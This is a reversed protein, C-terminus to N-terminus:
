VRPLDDFPRVMGQLLTALPSQQRWPLLLDPLGQGETLCRWAREFEWRIGHISVASATRATNKELIFPDEVCLMSRGAQTKRTWGKDVRSLPQGLRPSVVNRTYDFEFAYFHFFGLLLTALSAKRPRGHWGRLFHAEYGYQPDSPLLQGCALCKGVMPPSAPTIPLRLFKSCCLQQLPPIVGHIQLYYFMMLCYTYSNLTDLPADSIGRAKAWKKVVMLLPRVHPNTQTYTAFLETNVLSISAGFCIDGELNYTPHVFKVIPVTSHRIPVIKLFKRSRLLRAAETVLHGRFQKVSEASRRGELVEMDMHTLYDMQVCLDMDSTKSSIGNASSGFAVITTQTIGAGGSLIGQMDQLFNARAQEEEPTMSTEQIFRVVQAKIQHHIGPSISSPDIPRPIAYPRGAVMPEMARTAKLRDLVDNPHSAAKRFKEQDLPVGTFQVSWHMPPLPPRRGQRVGPPYPAQTRVILWDRLYPKQLWATLPKTSWGPPWSRSDLDEIIELVHRIVPSGSDGSTQDLGAYLANLISWERSLRKDEEDLRRRLKDIKAPPHFRKVM